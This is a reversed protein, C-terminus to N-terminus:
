PINGGYETGLALSMEEGLTFEVICKSGNEIKGRRRM